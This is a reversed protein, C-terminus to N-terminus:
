GIKDRFLTKKQCVEDTENKNAIEMRKERSVRCNTKVISSTKM